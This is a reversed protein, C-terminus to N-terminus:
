KMIYRCKPYGSCGMFQGYKGTRQVLKSGCKPCIGNRVKNKIEDINRNINTVHERKAEKDTINLSLLQNYIEEQENGSLKLDTYTEIIKKVQSIYILPKETQVKLESRSSFAVIPIFKDISMNTIKSLNKVHGFNQRLPNFFQYKKGYMNKTWNDSYEGGTIWGKYNKTEIVFIGYKSVVIHDIQTSGNETKIMLNNIIKYQDNPLKALIDSVAKEGIWGKINPSFSEWLLRIILIVILLYFIDGM